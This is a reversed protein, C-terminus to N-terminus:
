LNEHAIVRNYIDKRRMNEEVVFRYIKLDPVKIVGGMRFVDYDVSLDYKSNALKLLNNLWLKPTSYKGFVFNKAEEYWQLDFLDIETFEFTTNLPELDSYTNSLYAGINKGSLRCDEKERYFWDKWEGEIPYSYSAGFHNNNTYLYHFFLRWPEGIFPSNDISIKPVNSSLTTLYEHVMDCRNAPNIMRNLGVLIFKPPKINPYEVRFKNFEMYEVGSIEPPVYDAHYICFTGPPVEFNLVPHSTDKIFQIM